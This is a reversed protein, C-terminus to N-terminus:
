EVTVSKALNRPKDIDHGKLIAIHYALLQCPITNLVPMLFDITRPIYIVKDAISTIKKDGVTALAIIMGNRAKVELMNSIIKKYTKDQTAIFITPMKKDILAIPGHKMEAAPYGEAHIYSIEKLKLAGELAIPFNYGRGLYLCNHTNKLKQALEALSGSQDLLKKILVPLRTLEKLIKQANKRNITKKLNAFHIALITLVILQSTFGKTTAVGIEPGAHLYAGADVLRAISSGVVNCIGFTLAKKTKALELAAITDATEGSQSIAIVLCDPGVVPYRYRFESAYEVKVPIKALEEILSGGVLGAHWSSGCAVIIIRSLHPLKSEITELGGLKIQGKEPIFRGRFANAISEPQEFIEKLMFTKFGDKSIQTLNWNITEVKKKILHNNGLNLSYFM